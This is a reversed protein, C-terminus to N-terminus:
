APDRGSSALAGSTSSRDTPVAERAAADAVLRGLLTDVLWHLHARREAIAAVSLPDGAWIGALAPAYTFTNVVAASFTVFFHRAALPGDAPTVEALLGAIGEYLAAMSRRIADIESGHSTLQSQVLGPYHRNSDIFDLYADVMRHLRTALPADDGAAARLAAGHAEYYRDVIRGFLAEMSGFYYFVLAKNVGAREAVARASVGDFGREGFLAAAAALLRGATENDIPPRTM